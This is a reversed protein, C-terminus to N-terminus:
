LPFERESDPHEFGRRRKQSRPLFLQEASCWKSIHGKRNETCHEALQLPPKLVRSTWQMSTRSFRSRLGKWQWSSPYLGCTLVLQLMSGQRWHCTSGQFSTNNKLLLKPFSCNATAQCYSNSGKTPLYVKACLFVYLVVWLSQLGQTHNCYFNDYINMLNVM